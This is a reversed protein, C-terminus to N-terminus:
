IERIIGVVLEAAREITGVSVQDVTDSKWHWHPLRGNIDFAMISMARFGRVLAPTADTSLGRYESGKIRWENERTVRRAASQLRRDSTMRRAMGEKTVWSLNGAGVNDLNIIVAGRLDEAYYDLFSRMGWTGTEEAGTAVFWIEKDDLGRDVSTTVKRRIRAAESSAFGPDDIDGLGAAGGKSGSDDELHDWSGIRRGEDRVDFDEGLGLWEGAADEERRKRGFLRRRRPREDPYEDDPEDAEVIDPDDFVSVGGPDASEQRAPPEM